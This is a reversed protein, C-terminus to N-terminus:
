RRRWRNRNVASRTKRRKIVHDRPILSNNLKNLRAIHDEYRSTADAAGQTDGTMRMLHALAGEIIAERGSDTVALVDTDNVLARPSEIYRVNMVGDESPRPYMAFGPHIGQADLPRSYDPIISGDDIFRGDNDTDIRVQALLFFDQREDLRLLDENKFTSSSDMAAYSDFDTAVRRRYINVYVGSRGTHNRFNVGGAGSQNDAFFGLAFEINPLTLLQAGPPVVPDGGTQAVVAQPSIPSPASEWLMRTYRSKGPQTSTVGQSDSVDITTLVDDHRALGQNFPLSTAKGFGYTVCYDFTGPV